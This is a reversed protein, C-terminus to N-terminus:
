YTVRFEFYRWPTKDKAERDGYISWMRVRGGLDGPFPDPVFFLNSEGRPHVYERWPQWGDQWVQIEIGCASPRPLVTDEWTINFNRPYNKLQAGEEPEIIEVGVPCYPAALWYEQEARAGTADAVWISGPKPHCSRWTIEFTSGGQEVGDHYYTYPPTGGQAQVAVTAIYNPDDPRWDAIFWSFTLPGGSPAPAQGSPASLVLVQGVDIV